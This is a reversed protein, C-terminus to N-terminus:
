GREATIANQSSTEVATERLETDSGDLQFALTLTLLSAIAIDGKRAPKYQWARAAEKAARALEADPGKALIRVDTARGQEDVYVNLRVEGESGALLSTRPYKPPKNGLAPDTANAPHFTTDTKAKPTTDSVVEATQEHSQMPMEHSPHDSVVTEAVKFKIADSLHLPPNVMPPIEVPVVPAQPEPEASAVVHAQLPIDPDKQAASQAPRQALWTLFAAHILFSILLMPKLMKDSM